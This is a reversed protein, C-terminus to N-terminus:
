EAFTIQLLLAFCVNRQNNILSSRSVDLVEQRAKRETNQEHRNM